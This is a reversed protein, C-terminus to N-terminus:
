IIQWIIKHYLSQSNCNEALSQLPDLVCKDSSQILILYIRDLPIKVDGVSLAFLFSAALFLIAAMVIWHFKNNLKLPFSM